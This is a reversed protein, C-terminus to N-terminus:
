VGNRRIENKKNRMLNIGVFTDVIMIVMNVVIGALNMGIIEKKLDINKILYMLVFLIINIVIVMTSLRIGINSCINITIYSKRLRKTKPELLLLKVNETFILQMIFIIIFYIAKSIYIEFSYETVKNIILDYMDFLVNLGCYLITCCGFFFLLGVSFLNSIENKKMETENMELIKKITRIENLIHEKEEKFEMNM